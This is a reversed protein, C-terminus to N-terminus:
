KCRVLVLLVRVKSVIHGQIFRLWM